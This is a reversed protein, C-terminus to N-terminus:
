PRVLFADDYIKTLQKLNSLAAKKAKYPGVRLKYFPAEFILYGNTGSNLLTSKAALMGPLDVSAMVQVQWGSPVSVVFDPAISQEVKPGSKPKPKPKADLVVPQSQPQPLRKTVPPNMTPESERVYFGTAAVLDGASSFTYLRSIQLFDDVKLGAFVVLAPATEVAIFDVKPSYNEDSSFKSTLDTYMTTKHEQTLRTNPEKQVDFSGCGVLVVGYGLFVAHHM